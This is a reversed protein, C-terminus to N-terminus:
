VAQVDAGVEDAERGLYIERVVPDRMVEQPVGDAIVCGFNLVILRRVVALLAHVIHEIWVVTVGAAQIGHITEVLAHVEHELLGGGIEDLLLLRPRTALARALELRKRDLLRLAGALEHARSALGCQELCLWARDLAGAASERAGFVAGVRVNDLVSMGAFPHPIQYSRGIGARCRRSPPWDTIAEGDLLIRGADPRLQGGILNLLSSKGAGNPGIIGVPQGAALTLDIGGAVVVAGFRKAVGQVALLPADM